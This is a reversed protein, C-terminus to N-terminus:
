KKNFVQSVVHSIFDTESRMEEVITELLEGDLMDEAHLIELYKERFIALVALTKSPDIVVKGEGNLSLYGSAHYVKYAYIQFIIYPKLPASSYKAFYRLADLAFHVLCETLHPLTLMGKEYLLKLTFMATLEARPEELLTLFSPNGLPEKMTELNYIAHGVEHAAVHWVLQEVADPKYQTVVQAPFLPSLVV